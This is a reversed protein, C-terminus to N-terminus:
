MRIYSLRSSLSLWEQGNRLTDFLLSLSDAKISTSFDRQTTDRKSEDRCFKSDNPKAFQSKLVGNWDFLNPALSTSCNDVKCCKMQVQSLYLTVCRLLFFETLKITVALHHSWSWPGSSSLRRIKLSGSATWRKIIPFLVVPKFTFRKSSVWGVMLM